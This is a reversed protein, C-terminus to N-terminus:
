FIGAFAKTIAERRTSDPVVKRFAALVPANDNIASWNRFKQIHLVNWESGCHHLLWRDELVHGSRKLEESVGSVTKLM